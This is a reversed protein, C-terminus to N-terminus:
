ETILPIYKKTGEHLKLNMPIHEGVNKHEFVDQM